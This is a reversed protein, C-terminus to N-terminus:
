KVNRCILDHINMIDPTSFFKSVKLKKDFLYIGANCSINNSKGVMRLIYMNESQGIFIFKGEFDLGRIFGPFKSIMSKNEQSLFEGHFSGLLHIKNEIIKPSHPMKINKLIPKIFLKKDTLKIEALGGDFNNKRWGGKLSFYSVFIKKNFVILDNLHHQSEKFKNFENSFPVSKIFKFYKSYVQIEDTAANVVYYLKKQKCYDFGCCNPLQNKKKSQDM